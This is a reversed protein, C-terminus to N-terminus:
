EEAGFFTQPIIEYISGLKEHFSSRDVVILFVPNKPIVIFTSLITKLSVNLPVRCLKNKKSDNEYYVALHNYVYERETDWFAYPGSDPFMIPLHDNWCSNEEFDVIVESISYQPILIICTWHVNGQKDLSVVNPTDLPLDYHSESSVVLGRDALAQELRDEYKKKNLYFM